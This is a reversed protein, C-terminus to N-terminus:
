LRYKNNNNNNSDDSVDVAIFSDVVKISPM